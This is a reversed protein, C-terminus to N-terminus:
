PKSCLSTWHCKRSRQFQSMQFLPQETPHCSLQSGCTWQVQLNPNPAMHDSNFPHLHVQVCSSCHVCEWQVKTGLSCSISSERPNGTTFPNRNTSNPLELPVVFIPNSLNRFQLGMPTCVTKHLAAFIAHLHSSKWRPCSPPYVVFNTLCDLENQSIPSNHHFWDLRNSFMKKFQSIKM